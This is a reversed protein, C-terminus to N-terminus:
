VCSDPAPAGGAGARFKEICHVFIDELYYLGTAARLQALTDCAHIRGQHIIAIRDCLKQAESMIHTSFLITKGEDRFGAILKLERSGEDKSARVVALQEELHGTSLLQTEMRLRRYIGTIRELENLESEAARAQATLLQYAGFAALMALSLIAVLGLLKTRIGM